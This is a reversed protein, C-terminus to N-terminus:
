VQSTILVVSVRRRQWSLYKSKFYALQQQKEKLRSFLPRLIGGYKRIVLTHNLAEGTFTAKENLEPQVYTQESM